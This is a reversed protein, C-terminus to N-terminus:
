WRSSENRSLQPALRGSFHRVLRRPSTFTSTYGLFTRRNVVKELLRRLQSSGALRSFVSCARRDLRIRFCSSRLAPLDITAAEVNGEDPQQQTTGQSQLHRARTGLDMVPQVMTRVRRGSLDMRRSLQERDSRPLNRGSSAPPRHSGVDAYSWCLFWWVHRSKWQFVAP